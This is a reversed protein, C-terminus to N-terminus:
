GTATQRRVPQRWPLLSNATRARRCSRRTPAARRGARISAAALDCGRRARDRRAWRCWETASRHGRARRRHADVHVEPAIVEAGRELGVHALPDGLRGLLKRRLPEVVFASRLQEVLDRPEGLVVRRAALALDELLVGTVDRGRGVGVRQDFQPGSGRLLRAQQQVRQCTTSGQPSEYREVDAFLCQAFGRGGNRLVVVDFDVSNDNVELAMELLDRADAGAADDRSETARDAIQEGLLARLKEGADGGAEVPSVSKQEPG